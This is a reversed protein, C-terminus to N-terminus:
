SAPGASSSARPAASSSTAGALPPPIHQPHCKTQFPNAKSSCSQKNTEGEFLVKGKHTIGESITKQARSARQRQQLLLIHNLWSILMAYSPVTVHLLLKGGQKEAAPEWRWWLVATVFPSNFLGADWRQIWEIVPTGSTSERTQDGTFHTYTKLLAAPIPAATNFKLDRWTVAANSCPHSESSLLWATHSSCLM